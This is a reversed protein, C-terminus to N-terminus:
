LLAAFRAFVGAAVSALRPLERDASLRLLNADVGAERLEDEGSMMAALVAADMELHFQVGWARAGFRFAQVPTQTSSALPVAGAPPVIEDGHWHFAVFSEPAGAFLADDRAPAALRVRYFGIEKRAAKRVTGGLAAALLQSGLCIGLVPRGEDVCRRLLRLEDRLHALRDQDRVGMGGGLVVLAEARDPVEDGAFTRVLRHGPLLPLLTGAGEGPEHQIVIM